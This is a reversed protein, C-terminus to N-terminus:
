WTKASTQKNRYLFYSYVVVVVTNVYADSRKRKGGDQITADIPFETFLNDKEEVEKLEEVVDVLKLFVKGVIDESIFM